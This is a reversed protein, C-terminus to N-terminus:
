PVTAEKRSSSAMSSRVRRTVFDSNMLRIGHSGGTIKLKRLVLYQSGDVEMVNHSGMTMQIVATEGAKGSVTIPQAATGVTVAFRSSFSYRGGRLVLEDGPRLAAISARVDTDPAIEIVAGTALFCAAIGRECTRGNNPEDPMKSRV